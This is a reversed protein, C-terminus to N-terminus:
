SLHRQTRAMSSGTAPLLSINRYAGLNNYLSANIKLRGRFTGNAYHARVEPLSGKNLLKSRAYEPSIHLSVHNLAATVFCLFAYSFLLFVEWFPTFRGTATALMTGISASFFGGLIYTVTHHVSLEYDHNRLPIAKKNICRLLLNRISYMCKSFLKRLGPILVVATFVRLRGLM